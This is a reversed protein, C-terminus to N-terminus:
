VRVLNTTELVFFIIVVNKQAIVYRTTTGAHRSIDWRLPDISSPASLKELVHRFHIVIMHQTLGRFFTTRKLSCVAPLVM